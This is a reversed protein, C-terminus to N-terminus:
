GCNMGGINSVKYVMRYGYFMDGFKIVSVNDLLVKQISMDPINFNEFMDDIMSCMTYPRVEGNKLPWTEIHSAVEVYIYDEHYYPNKEYPYTNSMYVNIFTKQTSVSYPEKPMPFVNKLFIESWAPAEVDYPADTDNCAYRLLMDNNRIMELTKSVIYQWQNLRSM